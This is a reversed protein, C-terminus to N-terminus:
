ALSCKAEKSQPYVNFVVQDNIKEIEIDKFTHAQSMKTLNENQYYSTGNGIIKPCVFFSIKDYLNQDLLSTIVKAGGEVLISSIKMDGLLNFAEALDIYDEKISAFIFKIKKSSVFSITEDSCKRYDEISTIVITKDTHEDNFITATLDINRLSGLIIRYPVKGKSDLGMRISLKANDLNLTNRGILVADYGLRMEHVRFRADSDSIWKSDGSLTAIKGDLTQALKIHIFPKQTKIYKFFVENLKRGEEELIGTVVEIGADQLAKVGKGAVSPNPDVNSIVVKKIKSSIILNICPATQKNTHCCPELSCYLTSGEVSELANNIANPEAHADGYKMHYGEGLIINDKVVVAGVLPNPSVTGTGMRALEFARKM